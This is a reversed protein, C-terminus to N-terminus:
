NAMYSVNPCLYYLVHSFSEVDILVDILVYPLHCVVNANLAWLLALLKGGERGEM